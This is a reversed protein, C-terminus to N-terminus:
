PKNKHCLPPFQPVSIRLLKGHQRLTFWSQRARSGMSRVMARSDRPPQAAQAANLVQSAHCSAQPRWPLEQPCPQLLPFHIGERRAESSSNHKSSLRAGLPRRSVPSEASFPLKNKGAKEPGKLDSAKWRLTRVAWPNRATGSHRSQVSSRATHSISLSTKSETPM